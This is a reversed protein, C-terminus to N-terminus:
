AGDDKGGPILRLGKGIDDAGDGPLVVFSAAVRWAESDKPPILPDAAVTQLIERLNNVKEKPLVRLLAAIFLRHAKMEVSHLKALDTLERLTEFMLKTTEKM